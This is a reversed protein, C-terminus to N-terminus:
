DATRRSKGSLKVIHARSLIRDVLADGITKDGIYDRWKEHPLQSTIILSGKQSRDEVIELLDQRARATLPTLGFDDLVLIPIKSLYSRYKLHSGESRKIELTDLLEPVRLWLVRKKMKIALIALASAIWSKGVGTAGELVIHQLLEIWNGQILLQLQEKNEYRDVDFHIDSIDATVEKIRSRSIARQFAVKENHALQASLYYTLLEEFSMQHRDIRKIDKQYLSKVVLLKLAELLKILESSNM